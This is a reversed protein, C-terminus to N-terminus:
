LFYNRYLESSTSTKVHRLPWPPTGTVHYLLRSIISSCCCCFSSYFHIFLWCSLFKVPPEVLCVFMAPLKQRGILVFIIVSNNNIDGKYRINNKMHHRNQCKIFIIASIPFINFLSSKKPSTTSVGFSSMSCCLFYSHKFHRMYLPLDCKNPCLHVCPLTPM